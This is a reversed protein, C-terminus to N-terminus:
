ILNDRGMAIKDIYEIITCDETRFAGVFTLKENYDNYLSIIPETGKWDDSEVLWGFQLFMLIRMDVTYGANEIIVVEPSTNEDKFVKVVETKQPTATVKIKKVEDEKLIYHKSYAPNTIECEYEIRSLGDGVLFDHVLREVGYGSATFETGEPFKADVDRLEVILGEEELDKWFGIYSNHVRYGTGDESYVFEPNGHRWIKGVLFLETGYNNTECDRLTMKEHRNAM